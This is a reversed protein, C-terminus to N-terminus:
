SLRILNTAGYVDWLGLEHAGLGAGHGSLLEELRLLVKRHHSILTRDSIRSM